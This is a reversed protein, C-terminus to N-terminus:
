NKTQGSGLIEYQPFYIDIMQILLSFLLFFLNLFLELMKYDGLIWKMPIHKLDVLGLTLM